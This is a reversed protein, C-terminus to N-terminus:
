NWELFDNTRVLRQEDFPDSRIIALSQERMQEHEQQTLRQLPARPNGMEFGLLNLYAYTASTFDFLEQIEVLRAFQSHIDRARNINGATYANYIEVVPEPAFNQSAGVTGDFCGMALGALLEEEMGTMIRVHPLEQRIVNAKHVNHDSYKIAAVNAVRQCMEILQHANLELKTVFPVHYYTIPLDAAAQIATMHEILRDLNTVYFLPPLTSVGVAGHAAAHEALDCSEATTMAGVHVWMPVRGAIHQEAYEVTRYREERSLYTAMGTCGNIWFGHVAADICADFHRGLPEIVVQGDEDFPTPSAVIVGHMEPHLMETM